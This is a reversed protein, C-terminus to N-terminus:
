DYGNEVRWKAIFADAEDMAQAVTEYRDDSEWLMGGMDIVRILSRSYDDDGLEVRQGGCQVWWAINPYLDDFSAM